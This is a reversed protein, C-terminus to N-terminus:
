FVPMFSLYNSTFMAWRRGQSFRRSILSLCLSAGSLLFDIFTYFEQVSKTSWKNPFPLPWGWGMSHNVMRLAPDMLLGHQELRMETRFVRNRCCINEAYRSTGLSTRLALSSICFQCLAWGLAIEWSVPWHVCSGHFMESALAWLLDGFNWLSQNALSESAPPRHIHYM